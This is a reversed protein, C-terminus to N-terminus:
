RGHSQGTIQGHLPTSPPRTGSLAEPRAISLVTVLVVILFLFVLAAAVLWLRTTPDIAYVSGSLVVVLSAARAFFDLPTKLTSPDPKRTTLLRYM